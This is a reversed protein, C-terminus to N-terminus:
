RESRGLILRATSPRGLSVISFKVLFPQRLFASSDVPPFQPLFPPPSLTNGLVTTKDGLPRQSAHHSFTLPHTFLAKAVWYVKVRYASSHIKISEYVLNQNAILRKTLSFYLIKTECVLCMWCFPKCHLLAHYFQTYWYFFFSRVADKDTDYKSTMPGFIAESSIFPELVCM